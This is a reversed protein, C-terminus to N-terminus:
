SPQVGLRACGVDPGQGLCRSRHQDPLCEDGAGCRQTRL